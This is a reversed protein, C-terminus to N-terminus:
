ENKNEKDKYISTPGCGLYAEFKIGMIDPETLEKRHKEIHREVIMNYIDDSLTYDEYPIMTREVGNADRQVKSIRVLEDFDISPTANRYLERYIDWIIKGKKSLKKPYKAM